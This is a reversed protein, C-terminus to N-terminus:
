KVSLMKGVHELVHTSVNAVFVLRIEPVTLILFVNLDVDPTHIVWINQYVHVNDMQAFLMQEAHLLIAHTM